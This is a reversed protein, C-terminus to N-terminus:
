IEPEYPKKYKRTDIEGTGDCDPCFTVGGDNTNVEGQGQCLSCFRLYYDPPEMDPRNDTLKTM